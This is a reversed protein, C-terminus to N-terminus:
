AAAQAERLGELYAQFKRAELQQKIADRVSDLTPPENPRTDERLIVHWGFQTQVPEQSFQGDELAQVAASFPPEMANPAFWGLDGGRATPGATGHEAAADAFDRGGEIEAKIAEAQELEPVLIHSAQIEQVPDAALIQAEYIPRLAEDTTAEEILGRLGAEALYNRSDLEARLRALPAEGAGSAVGMRALLVQNVAQQVLGDYLQEDPINQYQEPLNARMLIITGMTIQTDDVTAVVDDIDAPAPAPAAEESAESSQDQAAPPSLPVVAFTLAFLAPLALARPAILRM